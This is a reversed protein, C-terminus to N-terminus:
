SDRLAALPPMAAARAAPWLTAAVAAGALAMAAYGVVAIDLPEVGFVLARAPEATAAVLLTGVALGSVVLMAASRFVLTLIDRRTAGLALRLGIEGRRRSVLELMTGYLGVIAIVVALVGFFASLVAMLRERVLGQQVAAELTRVDVDLAADLRGLARRVEGAMSLSAGRIVFDTFQRPDTIQAMPVFAIPLFDERLTFYKTNPVLGVIEVVSDSGDEVRFRRGVADGTIGLRRVFADNVIAVRAAAPSDNATFDRGAVLRIGMAALYGDSVGNLRVATRGNRDTGDLWVAAGTGTGGLPVHRVEAASAVGPVQRIVELADRRASARAPQALGLRSFDVRAITVGTSEFGTAVALLNRLTGGFLFAASLLVLSVAVQLMVLGQRIRSGHASAATGRASVVSPVAMAASRAARWAPFVGFLLCAAVAASLVFAVLPATIGVDITIDPGLFTLLLRSFASCLTLGLAAGAAALVANELVVQRVVDSSSAGIAMRVAFEPQRAAARSLVLSALNTCVLLLVLATILLLLVLPDGFRERVASVGTGAEVAQLRLSRYDDAEGAAAGVPVTEDFLGRSLVDLQANVATLTQEPRMRGMATLWWLTGNTLWGTEQGVEAQACIPVAVDFSRGVQVGSFGAPTVGIVEVPRDNVIITRGIASASAGLERRWFGDSVVVSPLGCGPRDDAAVFTRGLAARAGLVNFFEGSVFLGRVLHREDDRGVRLDTNAWAAVGAFTTQTDRLREWLPNSLVPFGSTRRGNWRTVDALQILTLREPSAVPLPRLLVADVLQFVAASAGIGLGLIVVAAAFFGRSHLLVRIAHTMEIPLRQLKRM